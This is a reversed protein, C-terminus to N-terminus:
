EDGEEDEHRGRDADPFGPIYLFQSIGTPRFFSEKAFIQNEKDRFADVFDVAIYTLLKLQDAFYLRIEEGRIIIPAEISYKKGPALTNRLYILPVKNSEISVRVYRLDLPMQTPNVIEFGFNLTIEADGPNGQANMRWNELNLWQRNLAKQLKVGNEIAVTQREIITTQQKVNETSERMAKTARSTEIAQILIAVFTVAAVLIGLLGVFFLGISPLNAPAVLRSFYGEPVPTKDGATQTSEQNHIFIVSPSPQPQPSPTPKQQTQNPQSSWVGVSALCLLAVVAFIRAM